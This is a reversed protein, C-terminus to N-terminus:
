LLPPRCLTRYYTLRAPYDLIESQSMWRTEEDPYGEAYLNQFVSALSERVAAPASSESPILILKRFQRETEFQTLQQVEPDIEDLKGRFLFDKM